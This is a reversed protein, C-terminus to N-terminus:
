IRAEGRQELKRLRHSVTAYQIGLFKAIERMTYGYDRYAKLSGEDEVASSFVESLSPRNIMRQVRPVESPKTNPKAISEIFRESGLYIQGKLDGWPSIGLGESVFRRYLRQAERREGAFQGLIWDTTLFSPPKSLGATARYSPPEWEGAERVMKARVPNLVIYRSLELLYSDRDVVIAKYRGQFVHGVRDHRRNFVQTYSGNLQRMGRSLPPDVTEIFLHYHNTMLCYAHCIWNFRKVVQELVHLFKERDAADLFIEQRANGRSTVHYVAGPYEIRLPRARVGTITM